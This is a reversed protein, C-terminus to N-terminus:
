QGTGGLKGLLGTDDPNVYVKHTMLVPVVEIKSIYPELHRHLEQSFASILTPQTLRVDIMYDVVGLLSLVSRVAPHKVALEDIRAKLDVCPRSAHIRLSYHSLTNGTTTARYGIALLIGRQKLTELRYDVTSEPVSCRRALERRSAIKGTGLALLITEDLEDFKQAQVAASYSVCNNNAGTGSREPHCVRVEFVPSVHKRFRVDPVKRCIEGFFKPVDSLSRVLFMVSLHYEGTLENVFTTTPADVFAKTLAALAAQGPTELAVEACFEALGLAYPNVYPRLRIADGDVLKKLSHRVVHEKLGTVRSVEPVSLSADFAMCAIIDLEKHSLM